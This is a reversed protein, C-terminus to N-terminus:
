ELARLPQVTFKIVVALPRRQRTLTSPLHASKPLSVSEDQFILFKRARVYVSDIAEFLPQTLITATSIIRGGEREAM